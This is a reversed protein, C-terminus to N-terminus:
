AALDGRDDLFEPFEVSAVVAKFQEFLFDAVVWYAGESLQLGRTDEFRELTRKACDDAVSRVDQERM